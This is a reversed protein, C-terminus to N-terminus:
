LNSFIHIFQQRMTDPGISESEQHFLCFHRQPIDVSHPHDRRVREVDEGIGFEKEKDNSCEVRSISMFKSRDRKDVIKSLTELVDMIFKSGFELVGLGDLRVVVVFM